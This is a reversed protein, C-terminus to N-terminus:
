RGLLKWDRKGQSFCLNLRWVGLGVLVPLFLLWTGPEPVTSFSVVLAYDEGLTQDVINGAHVDLRYNTGPTLESLFIHDVNGLSGSSVYVDKWIDHSVEQQLIFDLDSLAAKGLDGLNDSAGTDLTFDVHRDWVLTATLSSLLSGANSGVFKETGFTYYHDSGNTMLTNADWFRNGTEMYQLYAENANAQGAGVAYNLPAIANPIGDTTVVLGPQWITQPNGDADKGAIKDASNIILAKILKHDTKLPTGKDSAPPGYTLGIVNGNGDLTETWKPAAAGYLLAAEGAVHPAAFSTGSAVGAILNPEPTGFYDIALTSWENTGPAVVDVGCRGNALPRWSSYPAVRSAPTRGPDFLGTVNPNVVDLAGVALGNFSDAPSGLYGTIKGDTGKTDGENGASIVMLKDLYGKTTGGTKGRYGVYEDMLLSEGFSSGDLLTQDTVVSGWSSNIVNAGATVAAYNLSNNLSLFGTKNGAGDFIAGYYRALPAVGLFSMSTTGNSVSVYESAMIGAVFTGHFSNDTPDNKGSFDKVDIYGFQGYNADGPNPGLGGQRHGNFGDIGNGESGRVEIQGVIAGYGSVGDSMYGDRGYYPLGQRIYPVSLDIAPVDIAPVSVATSLLIVTMAVLRPVFTVSANRLRYLTSSVM